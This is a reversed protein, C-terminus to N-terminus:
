VSETMKDIIDEVEKENIVLEFKDTPYNYKMMLIETYGDVIKGSINLLLFYEDNKMIINDCILYESDDNLKIIKGKKYDKM